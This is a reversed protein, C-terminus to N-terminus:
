NKIKRFYMFVLNQVKIYFVILNLLVHARIRVIGQDIKERSLEISKLKRVLGGHTDCLNVISSELAGNVHASYICDPAIRSLRAHM